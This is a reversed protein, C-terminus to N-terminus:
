VLARVAEDDLPPHAVVVEDLAHDFVQSAFVEIPHQALPSTTRM